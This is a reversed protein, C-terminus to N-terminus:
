SVSIGTIDGDLTYHADASAFNSGGLTYTGAPSDSGMLHFCWVARCEFDVDMAYLGLQLYWGDNDRFLQMWKGGSVAGDFMSWNFFSMGVPYYGLDPRAFLLCAGGEEYGYVGPQQEGARFDNYALTRSDAASLAIVDSADTVPPEGYTYSYKITATGTLTVAYSTRSVRLIDGTRARLINGGIYGSDEANNTLHEHTHADLVGGWDFGLGVQYADRYIRGPISVAM